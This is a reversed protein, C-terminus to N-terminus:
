VPTADLDILMSFGELKFITNAPITIDTPLALTIENFETCTLIVKTRTTGVILETSMYQPLLVNTLEACTGLVIMGSISANSELVTDDLSVQVLNSNLYEWLNFTKANVYSTNTSFEVQVGVRKEVCSGTNLCAVINKGIHEVGYQNPHIFDDAGIKQVLTPNYLTHEIGNLYHWNNAYAGAIYYRAAGRMNRAQTKNYYSNGAFGLYINKLGSFRGRVYTDFAQIAAPIQSLTKFSDNAGGCILIDTITEEDSIVLEQLKQLWTTNAIFGTGGITMVVSDSLGLMNIVIDTWATGPVINNYSDGIFLFRRPQTLDDIAAQIAPITVNNITDIQNQLNLIQGNYAGTLVWYTPNSAPDGVNSPVERKSLYSSNLYTVLTLPEYSAGAEWEASSPDLSNEYIKTVYRAGIYQRVAM